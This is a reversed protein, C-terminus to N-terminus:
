YSFYTRKVIPENSLDQFRNDVLSNDKYKIKMTFDTLDSSFLTDAELNRLKEFFELRDM